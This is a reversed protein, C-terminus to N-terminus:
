LGLPLSVILSNLPLKPSSPTMSNLGPSTGSGFDFVIASVQPRKRLGVTYGSYLVCAIIMLIDGINFTLNLLNGIDGSTAVFAVGIFAVGVGAMQMLTVPTRYALFTGLIVFLPISGQLIGINVGSTSHAAAYFLGNFVAYGLAGMVSFFVLHSRLNPWDRRVPKNFFVLLLIVVGLWRIAVMAMPSVEGVVLKGFVANAGWCLTTFVLLAYALWTKELFSHASSPM